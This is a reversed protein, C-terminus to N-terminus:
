VVKLQMSDDHLANCLGSLGREKRREEEQEKRGGEEMHTTRSRPEIKKGGEWSLLKDSMFDTPPAAKIVLETLARRCMVFFKSVFIRRINTSSYNIIKILFIKRFEM